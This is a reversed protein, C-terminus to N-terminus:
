YLGQLLWRYVRRRTREDLVVDRWPGDGMKMFLVNTERHQFYINRKLDLGGMPSPTPWVGLCVKHRRSLDVYSSGSGHWIDYECDHAWNELVQTWLAEVPMNGSVAM